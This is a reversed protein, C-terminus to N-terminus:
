QVAWGSYQPYKSYFQEKTLGVGDKNAETIEYAWASRYTRDTPVESDNIIKFMLGSPTDKEGLVIPDIEIAPIIVKLGNDNYIIRM